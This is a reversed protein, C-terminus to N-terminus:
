TQQWDVLRLAGQIDSDSLGAARAAAIGDITTKFARARGAQDFAQLPRAVDLVTQVGTKATVEDGILRAIPGLTWMALHRQAERIGPGGADFLAPLVGFAALIAARARDLTEVAMADALNPSLGQPRWDTAPAPGGASTTMVSERLLVRGRQGRFGAALRELDVGPTEPMPVIASGLPANGFVEVLAAEVTALMDASLSCRRLPATGRWPERADAGIVIHVVEPALVTLTRGGGVDPMSLRYARATGDITSLDWDAVPRLEGDGILAVFEGRLALGRAILALLRPTLLDSAGDVDALALGSEWLGVATQAASTLEAAGRAGSIVDARALMAAGTFGGAQRTEPRRGFPWWRTM